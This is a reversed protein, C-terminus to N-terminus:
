DSSDAASVAAAIAVRTIVKPFLCHTLLPSKDDILLIIYTVVCLKNWEVRSPPLVRCSINAYNCSGVLCMSWNVCGRGSVQGGHRNDNDSSLNTLLDGSSFSEEVRNGQEKFVGIVTPYDLGKLLSHWTAPDTKWLRRRRCSHCYRVFANLTVQLPNSLEKCLM